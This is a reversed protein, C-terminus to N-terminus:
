HLAAYNVYAVILLQSCNRPRLPLTGEDDDPLRTLLKELKAAFDTLEDPSNATRYSDSLLALEAAKNERDDAVAHVLVAHRDKASLRSAPDSAIVQLAVSRWETAGCLGAELHYYRRSM